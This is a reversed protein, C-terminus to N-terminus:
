VRNSPCPMRPSLDISIRGWARSHVGRNGLQPVELTVTRTQPPEAAFTVTIKQDAIYLLAKSRRTTAFEYRVGAYSIGDRTEAQALRDFHCM